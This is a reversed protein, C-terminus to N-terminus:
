SFSVEGDKNIKVTVPSDKTVPFSTMDKSGIRAAEVKSFTGTHVMPVSVASASGTSSDFSKTVAEAYAARINAIDTAQRSKDLQSSFIPIAVAVLVAIIAVVILLEALTFGKKNMKKM